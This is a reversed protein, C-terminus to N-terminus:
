ELEPEEQIVEDMIDPQNNWDREFAAWITALGLLEAGSDAALSLDGKQAFFTCSVSGDKSRYCKVQVRFGRERLIVLAPNHTGYNATFLM